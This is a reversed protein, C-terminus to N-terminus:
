RILISPHGASLIDACCLFINHLATEVDIEHIELNM